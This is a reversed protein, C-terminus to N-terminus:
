PTSWIIATAQIGCPAGAASRYAALTITATRRAGPDNGQGLILTDGLQSGASWDAVLYGSDPPAIAAQLRGDQYPNRWIDIDASTTNRWIVSTAAQGASCAGQVVGLGPLTLLDVFLSGDALVLRNAKMTVNTGRAFRTSDLGDLKDVDLNTAKGATSNVTLPARGAPVTIGLGRASTGGTTNTSTLQLVAGNVASRLTTTATATNTAGLVMYSVAAATASSTLAIVLAIAVTTRRRVIQGTLRAAFRSM